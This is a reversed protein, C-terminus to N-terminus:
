IFLKKLRSESNEESMDVIALIEGNEIVCVKDCLECVTDLNHSSFIVMHKKNKSYDIICEKVTQVGQPDLGVFPEDLIWLKPEHVLAGMICIKQKMGHSYGSIQKNLNADMNFITAYKKIRKERIEQNVGYVDAMFNVYELGTLNEYVAHNDPVYGILRKAKKEHKKIDFTNVTITGADFSHIGTICKITTSKGAGNKGVMGYVEGNDVVFSVGKIAPSKADRYTKVLNNVKLM